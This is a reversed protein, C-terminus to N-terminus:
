CKVRSLFVLTRTVIHFIFGLSEAAPPLDPIREIKFVISMKIENLVPNQKEAFELVFLLSKCQCNVLFLVSVAFTSKSGVKPILTM